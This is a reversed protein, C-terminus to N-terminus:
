SSLHGDSFYARIAEDPPHAALRALEGIFAGAGLATPKQGATIPDICRENAMIPRELYAVSKVHGHFAEAFAKAADEAVFGLWYTIGKTCRLHEFSTTEIGNHDLWIRMAAMAEALDSEIQHVEVVHSMPPRVVLPKAMPDNDDSGYREIREALM